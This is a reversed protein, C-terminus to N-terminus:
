TRHNKINGFALASQEQIQLEKEIIKKTLEDIEMVTLGVQPHAIEGSKTLQYVTRGLTRYMDMRQRKYFTADWKLKTIKLMRTSEERCTELATLTKNWFGVPISKDTQQQEM